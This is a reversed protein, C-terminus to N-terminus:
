LKLQNQMNGCFSILLLNAETLFIIIILFFFSFFNSKSFSVYAKLFDLIAKVVHVNSSGLSKCIANVILVSNPFFDRLIRDQNGEKFMKVMKQFSEKDKKLEKLSVKEEGVTKLNPISTKQPKNISEDEEYDIGGLGTKKGITNNSNPDLREEGKPYAQAKAKKFKEKSKEMKYVLAKITQLRTESNKLLVQWLTSMFMHDGIKANIKGLLKLIRSKMDTESDNMGSLLCGILGPLMPVLQENLPLYYNTFLELIKQKIELTARKFMSFLGYSFIAINKVLAPKRQKLIEFILKYITMNTRHIGIPLGPINLCQNLRKAMAKKCPLFQTDYTEIYGALKQLWDAMEAWNTLKEFSQLHNKLTTKLKHYVKDDEKRKPSQM